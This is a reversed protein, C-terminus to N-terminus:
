RDAKFRWYNEPARRAARWLTTEFLKAPHAMPQTFLNVVVAAIYGDGQAAEMAGASIHFDGDNREALIM